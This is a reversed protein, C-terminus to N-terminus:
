PVPPAEIDYFNPRQSDMALPLPGDMDQDLWLEERVYIRNGDSSVPVWRRETFVFCGNVGITCTDRWGSHDRYRRAVMAGDEIGWTLPSVSTGAESVHVQSGTGGSELVIYFGDFGAFDYATQSIDFGSRWPRALLAADFVLSGDRVSSLAHHAKEAGDSLQVLAIVGDGKRGDHLLRRLQASEGDDYDLALQGDGSLSWAFVQGDDLVVGAGGADFRHLASSQGSAHGIGGPVHIEPRHLPLMRVSPFEAATFPTEGSGDLYSLRAVTGAIDRAPMEPNDPYTETYHKVTTVLERGSAGGDLIRALDIGHLSRVVRVPLGDVYSTFGTVRPTDLTARATGDDFVWTLGSGAVPSTDVFSGSGGADLVLQEGEILGVRINGGAAPSLIIRSGHLDSEATPLVVEPDALTGAIAENFAEADDAHVEDVFQRYADTDSILAMTDPVGEPLAYDGDAVLKVAAAMQLLVDTDIAGQAAALQAEDVVPAGDTARQLLYALSASLPTVQVHNNEDRTLVGDAGAAEALRGFGGLISALAVSGSTSEVRVMDDAFGVVEVQYSGDKGAQAHFAQDGVHAVVGVSAGGAVRARAASAPGAATVKGSLTLGDVVDITVTALGFSRGTKITYRLTDRGTFGAAPTYVLKNGSIVASGNAPPAQIRLLTAATVGPDNALVDITATGGRAVVAFDHGPAHNLGSAAASAGAGALLGGILLTRPDIRRM